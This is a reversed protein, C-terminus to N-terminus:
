ILGAIFIVGLGATSIVLSRKFAKSFGNLPLWGYVGKQFIGKFVRKFAKYTWLTTQNRARTCTTQNQARTHLNNPEMRTHVNSGNTPFVKGLPTGGSESCGGPRAGRTNFIDLFILINSLILIDLFIKVNTFINLFYGQWVPQRGSQSSIRKPSNRNSNSSISSPATARATATAKAKATATYPRIPDWM